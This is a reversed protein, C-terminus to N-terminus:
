FFLFIGALVLVLGRIMKAPDNERKGASIYYMGLTSIVCSAVSKWLVSSSVHALNFMGGAPPVFNGSSDLSGTDGM